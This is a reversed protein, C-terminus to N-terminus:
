GKLREKFYRLTKIALNYRVLDDTNKDDCNILNNIYEKEVENFVQDFLQDVTLGKTDAIERLKLM